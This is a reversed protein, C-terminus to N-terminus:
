QLWRLINDAIDRLEKDTLVMAVVEYGDYATLVCDSGGAHKRVHLQDRLCGVSTHRELLSTEKIM